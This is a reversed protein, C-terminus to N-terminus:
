NTENEWKIEHNNQFNTQIFGPQTPGYGVTLGPFSCKGSFILDLAKYETQYPLFINSLASLKDVIATLRKIKTNLKVLEINNLKNTGHLEQRKLPLNIAEKKIDGCLTTSIILNTESIIIDDGIKKEFTGIIYNYVKEISKIFLSVENLNGTDITGIYDDIEKIDKININIIDNIYQIDIGYKGIQYYKNM